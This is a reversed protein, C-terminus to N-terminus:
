YKYKGFSIFLHGCLINLTHKMVNHRLLRVFKNMLYFMKDEMQEFMASSPIHSRARTQSVGHEFRPGSVPQGSTKM